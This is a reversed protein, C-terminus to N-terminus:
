PPSVSLGLSTRSISGLLVVTLAVAAYKSPVVLATVGTQVMSSMRTAVTSLVPRTVPTPGPAAVTTAVKSPRVVFIVAVALPTDAVRLRRTAGSKEPVHDPRATTRSL